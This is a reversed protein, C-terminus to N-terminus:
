TVPLISASNSQFLNGETSKWNKPDPVIIRHGDELLAENKTDFGFKIHMELISFEKRSAKVTEPTPNDSEEALNINHKIEQHLKLGEILQINTTRPEFPQNLLKLKDTKGNIIHKELNYENSYERILNYSIGYEKHYWYLSDLCEVDNIQVLNKIFEDLVVKPSEGLESGASGLRKMNIKKIDDNLIPAQNNISLKQSENMINICMNTGFSSKKIFRGDENEEILAKIIQKPTNKIEINEPLANVIWSLTHTALPGQIMLCEGVVLEFLAMYQTSLSNNEEVDIAQEMLLHNALAQGHGARKLMNFFKELNNDPEGQTGIYLLIPSIGSLNDVDGSMEFPNAGDLILLEIFEAPADHLMAVQLPSYGRYSGLIPTSNLAEKLYRRFEESSEDLHHEKAFTSKIHKYSQTNHSDYSECLLHFINYGQRLEYANVSNITDNFTKTDPNKDTASSTKYVDFYVTKYKEERLGHKMKRRLDNARVREKKGLLGYDKQLTNAAIKHLSKGRNPANNEAVNLIIEM